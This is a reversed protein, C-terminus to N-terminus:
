GPAAAPPAVWDARDIPLRKQVAIKVTDLMLSLLATTGFLGAIIWHPLPTMLIGLWALCTILAINLASAVVMIWAPHSMWFHRRERLVYTTATGGLVLTLFTLTRMQDPDLRLRFWGIALIGVCYSLKTLGLAIATLTL